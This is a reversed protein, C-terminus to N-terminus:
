SLTSPAISQIVEIVQNIPIAFGMGEIDTSAFKSVNIGIVDGFLNYLPGGSNGSNISADHQIYGVIGDGAVDRNIGAVIGMTVSGYFDYGQPNGAALVVTGPLLASSDGLNSVTITRELGVGSFSLIAIDVDNDVGLLTAVVFSSDSFVVKFNDGGDVVHQNTIIYYTNTSANFSYVVGSGIAVGTTGNYTSVGIVSNEIIATVDYIQNQLNQVYVPIEESSLIDSLNQTVEAYIEEYLQDTLMSSIDDYVNQYVEDYIDAYIQSVLDDYDSFVYTKGVETYTGTYITTEPTTTTVAPVTTTELASVSSCAFSSIAIAIFLIILRFKKM